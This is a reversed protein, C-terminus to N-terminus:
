YPMKKSAHRMVDHVLLAPSSGVSGSVQRNYHWVVAESDRDHISLSVDARNTTPWIDVLVGVAFALEQSIPRSLLFNSVIIADVNLIECLEKSTLENIYYGAKALKAKTTKMDQINVNLRNQMKRQLLWSYMEHHIAEAEARRVEPDVKKRATISVKPPIVAVVQHKTSTESGYYVKACSSLLLSLTLFTIIHFSRM